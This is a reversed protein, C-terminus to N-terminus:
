ERYLRCTDAVRKWVFDENNRPDILFIRNATAHSSVFRVEVGGLFLHKLAMPSLAEKERGARQM